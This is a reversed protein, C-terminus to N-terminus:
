CLRNIISLNYGDGKELTCTPIITYPMGFTGKVFDRVAQSFCHVDHLFIAYHSGLFPLVSTLDAVVSIDDHMADIFAFDLTRGKLAQHTDNPSWGQVLDVTGELDFEKMLFKASKYGVADFYIDSKSGQYTYAQNKEETYADMSVLHGGTRKFGSGIAVTSVGFANGLEFGSKLNHEVIFTELFNFENERISYPSNPQPIRISGKDKYYRAPADPQLGAAMVEQFRSM